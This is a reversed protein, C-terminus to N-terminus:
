ELRATECLIVVGENGQYGWRCKLLRATAHLMYQTHQQQLVAEVFPAMQWQQLEDQSTGKKIQAAWGLLLAQLLPSLQQQQQQQQPSSGASKEGNSSSSSAAAVNVAGAAAAAAAAAPPPAPAGAGAAAAATSSSSGTQEVLRPALYVASEDMMGELEKTLGVEEFGLAAVDFGQLGAVAAASSGSSSGAAAAKVAAILQAKPDIQHKTRLGLAGTLEVTVDLAAAAAELQQQADTVVGFVQQMLAVELHATALLVQAKVAGDTTAQEAQQQQSASSGKSGALGNAATAAAPLAGAWALTDQILQKLSTQLTISRGSLVQQQLMVARMCWWSWSGCQLQQLAAKDLVAAGASEKEQQQQQQQQRDTTTNFGLPEAVCLLAALLLDLGRIRGVVDEGDVELQSV